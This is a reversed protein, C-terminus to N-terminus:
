STLRILIYVGAFIFLLIHCLLLFTPSPMNRLDFIGKVSFPEPPKVKDMYTPKHLDLKEELMHIFSFKLIQIRRHHITIAIGFATAAFMIGGLPILALPNNLKFDAAIIGVLMATVIQLAWWTQTRTQFHDRWQIDLQQRLTEQSPIVREQQNTM